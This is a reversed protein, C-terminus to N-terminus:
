PGKGKTGQMISRGDEKPPLPPRKEAIGEYRKIYFPAYFSMDDKKRKQVWKGHLVMFLIALLPVFIIILAISGFLVWPLDKVEKRLVVEIFFSMTTQDITDNLAVTVLHSGIDEKVPTWSFIGDNSIVSGNPGKVISFTLLSTETTDPDHGM